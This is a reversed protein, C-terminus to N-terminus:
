CNENDRESVNANGSPSQPEACQDLAMQIYAAAVDSNVADLITQAESLLKIAYSLREDKGNDENRQLDM